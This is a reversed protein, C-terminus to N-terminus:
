GETTNDTSDDSATDEAILKNITELSASYYAQSQEIKSKSGEFFQLFANLGDITNTVFGCLKKIEPDTTTNYEDRFEDLVSIVHKINM